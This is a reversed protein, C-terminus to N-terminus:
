DGAAVSGKLALQDKRKIAMLKDIDLLVLRRGDAVGLGLLYDSHPSAGPRPGIQDPRLTVVDTVGDVVLGMACTDLQLIIVDTAPDDTATTSEVAARMDVIPLIVGGAVAMGDVRELSELRRLERVKDFELGYELGGLSFSLFEM